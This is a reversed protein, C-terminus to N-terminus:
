HETYPMVSGTQCLMSLFAFRLIKNKWAYIFFNIASNSLVMIYSIRTIAIIYNIPLDTYMFGITMCFPVKLILFAAINLALVKAAKLNSVKKLLKPDQINQLNNIQKCHWKVVWFIRCYILIILSSAVLYPIIIFCLTYEQPFISVTCSENHPENSTVGPFAFIILCCFSSFFWCGILLSTIGCPTLLTQYRFPWFIALYRELTVCCLHYLSSLM